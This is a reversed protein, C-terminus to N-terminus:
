IYSCVDGTDTYSGTGKFWTGDWVNDASIPGYPFYATYGSQLGMYGSSPNTGVESGVSCSQASAGDVSMEEYGDVTSTTTNDYGVQVYIGGNNISDVCQTGDTVNSCVNGTPVAHARPTRRQGALASLPSVGAPCRAIVGLGTSDVGAPADPLGINAPATPFSVSAVTCGDPSIISVAFLSVQIISTSTNTTTSTLM